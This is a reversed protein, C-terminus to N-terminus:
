VLADLFAARYIRHAECQSASWAEQSVFRMLWLSAYLLPSAQVFIASLKKERRRRASTARMVM